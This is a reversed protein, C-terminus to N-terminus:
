TGIRMGAEPRPHENLADCLWGTRILHSYGHDFQCLGIEVEDVHVSLDLDNVADCDCTYRVVGAVAPAVAQEKWMGGSRIREVVVDLTSAIQKNVLGLARMYLEAPISIGYAVIYFCVGDVSAHLVFVAPCHVGGLQSMDLDGADCDPWQVDFLFPAVDDGEVDGAIWFLNVSNWVVDGELLTQPSRPTCPSCRPRCSPPAREDIISEHALSAHHVARFVSAAVLGNFGVWVNAMLADAGGKDRMHAVMCYTFTLAGLKQKSDIWM